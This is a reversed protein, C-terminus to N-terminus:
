KPGVVTLEYIHLIMQSFGAMEMVRDISVAPVRFHRHIDALSCLAVVSFIKPTLDFHAFSLCVDVVKV